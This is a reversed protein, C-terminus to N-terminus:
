KFEGVIVRAPRIIKDNIKYGKQMVQIVKHDDDEKEVPIMSIAEHINPDFKEGLPNDEKIGHNSLTTILQNYIHEIGKRWNEPAENWADKNAFAMEFSDVVPLFDTIVGEKAYKLFDENNEKDRKRMNVFDAKARQFDDLNKRMDEKSQALEKKLKDIKNKLSNDDTETIDSEYVVEDEDHQPHKPM